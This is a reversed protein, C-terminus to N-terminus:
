DWKPLGISADYLGIGVLVRFVGGLGIWAYNQPSLRSDGAGARDGCAINASIQANYLIWGIVPLTLSSIFDTFPSGINKNSLSEAINEAIVFLVYVNPNAGRDGPLVFAPIFVPHGNKFFLSM